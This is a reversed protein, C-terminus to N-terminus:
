WILGSNSPRSLRQHILKRYTQALVSEVAQPLFRAMNYSPIIVSVLEETM